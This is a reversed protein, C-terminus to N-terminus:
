QVTLYDRFSWTKNEADYSAKIYRAPLIRGQMTTLAGFFDEPLKEVAQLLRDAQRREVDDTPPNGLVLARIKRNKETYAMFSFSWDHPSETLASVSNKLSYAMYDMEKQTLEDWRAVDYCSENGSKLIFNSRVLQSQVVTGKEVRYIRVFPCVDIGGYTRHSTSLGLTGSYWRAPVGVGRSEGYKQSMKKYLPTSRDAFSRVQRDGSWCLEVDKGKDTYRGCLSWQSEPLRTQGTTELREPELTTMDYVFRSVVPKEWLLIEKSWETRLQHGASPGDSVTGKSRMWDAFSKRAENEPITDLSLEKFWASPRFRYNRPDASLRRPEERKNSFFYDSFTWKNESPRYVGEVYRAPFIRGDTTVMHGFLGSPLNRVSQALRDVCAKEEATLTEPLLQYLNAHGRSDTFILFSFRCQGNYKKDAPPLVAQLAESFLRLEMDGMYMDWYRFIQASTPVMEEHQKQGLSGIRNKVPEMGTILGNEVRYRLTAMTIRNNCYPFWNAAVGITGSFWSAPVGKEAITGYRQELKRCLAVSDEALLGGPLLSHLCLRQQQGAPTYCKDISWCAAPLREQGARYLLEPEPTDAYHVKRGIDGDYHLVEKPWPVDNTIRGQPAMGVRDRERYWEKFNVKLEELSVTDGSQGAVPSQGAISPSLGMWGVFIFCIFRIMLRNTSYFNKM